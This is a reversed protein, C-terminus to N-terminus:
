SDNGKMLSPFQGLDFCHIFDGVSEPVPHRDQDRYSFFWEPHISIALGTERRVYNAVPCATASKQRGRVGEEHLFQAVAQYSGLAGLKDLVVEPEIM